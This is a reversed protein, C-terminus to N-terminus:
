TKSETVPASIINQHRHGVRLGFRERQDVMIFSETEYWTPKDDKYIIVFNVTEIASHQMVTFLEGGDRGPMTPHELRSELFQERDWEHLQSLIRDFYLTYGSSGILVPPIQVDYAAYKPNTIILGSEGDHKRYERPSVFPRVLQLKAIAEDREVKLLAIEGARERDLLAPARFLNVVFSVLVVFAYSGVIILVDAWVNAWALNVLGFRWLALRVIVAMCLGFLSKRYTFGATERFAKTFVRRAYSPAKPM